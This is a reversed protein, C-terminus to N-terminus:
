DSENRDELRDFVWTDFTHAEGMDKDIYTTSERRFVATKDLFPQRLEPAGNSMYLGIYHQKYRM